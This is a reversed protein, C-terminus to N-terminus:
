QIVRLNSPASPAPNPTIGVPGIYRDSLVVEDLKFYNDDGTGDWYAGIKLSTFYSGNNNFASSNIYLTQNYEGGPTTIWLRVTRTALNYYYEFCIWQGKFNKLYFTPVNETKTLDSNYAASYFAPQFGQGGAMPRMWFVFGENTNTYNYTLKWNQGPDTNFGPNVWLYFRLYYETLNPLSRGFHVDFNTRSPGGLPIRHCGSNNVGGTSDHYTTIPNDSYGFKYWNFSYPLDGQNFNEQFYVQGLSESGLFAILVGVLVAFVKNKTM